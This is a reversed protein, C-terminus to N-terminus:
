LLSSGGCLHSNELGRLYGVSLVVQPKVVRRTFKKPRSLARCIRDLDHPFRCENNSCVILKAAQCPEILDIRPIRPQSDRAFALRLESLKDGASRHYQHSIKHTDLHTFDMSKFVLTM